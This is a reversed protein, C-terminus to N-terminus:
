KPLSQDVKEPACINLLPYRPCKQGAAVFNPVTLPRALLCESGSNSSSQGVKEPVFMKVASMESMKQPLAVLNQM